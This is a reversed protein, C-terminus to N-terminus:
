FLKFSPTVSFLHPSVSKLLSPLLSPWPTPAKFLLPTPVGKRVITYTHIYHIYTHIYTHIFSHIFSHIYTHIYTHIYYTIHLIWQGITPVDFLYFFINNWLWIYWSPPTSPGGNTKKIQKPGNKPQLFVLNSDTFFLCSWACSKIINRGITGYTM